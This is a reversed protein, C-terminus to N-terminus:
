ALYKALPEWYHGKWGTALRQAQGQPFGTHDFVLKTGTAQAVLEFRAISYSGPAWGESRWAQVIRANPVLEVNRGTIRAGFLSCAGGAARDMHAIEGTVKTFETDDLIAEYLRAPSAAFAVEHHIAETRSIGHDPAARTARPTSGLGPGAVGLVPLLSALRAAFGRRSLREITM